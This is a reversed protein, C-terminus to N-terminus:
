HASPAGALWALFRGELNTPEIREGSLPVGWIREVLAPFEAPATEDPAGQAGRDDDWAEREEEQPGPRQAVLQALLSAFKARSQDGASEHQLWHLFACRYARLFEAHDLEFSPPLGQAGQAQPGLIPARILERRQSDDLLEFASLPEGGRRAGSKQSARLEDVFYGAGRQLRWRGDAQLPPLLGGESRGGPVFQSRAQTARGRLDGDTRTDIEGYEDIVLLNSLAGGLMPDLGRGCDLEFLSRAAMQAVHEELARANREQMSVGALLDAGAPERFALAVVRTGNLDYFTWDVLESGWLVQRRSEDRLGAACALGVFSERHAVLVIRTREQEREQGLGLWPRELLQALEASLQAPPSKPRGARALAAGLDLAPDPGLQALDKPSWSDIWRSLELARQRV